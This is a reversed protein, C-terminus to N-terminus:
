DDGDVGGSSECRDNAVTECQEHYKRLNNLWEKLWWQRIFHEKEVCDRIHDIGRLVARKNRAEYTKEPDVQVKPRRSM